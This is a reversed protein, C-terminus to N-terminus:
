SVRGYVIQDALADNGVSSDDQLLTHTSEVIPLEGPRPQQQSYDPWGSTQQQPQAPAGAGSDPWGSDPWGSAQQQPQAPAQQQPQAPNNPWTAVQVSAPQGQYGMEREYGMPKAVVGQEVLNEFEEDVSILLTHLGLGPTFLALVPTKAALQVTEVEALLNLLTTFQEYTFPGTSPTDAEEFLAQQQEKDRGTQQKRLALIMKLGTEVTCYNYKQLLKYVDEQQRQQLKSVVLQGRSQKPVLTVGEAAQQSLPNPKDIALDNKLQRSVLTLAAVEELNLDSLQTDLQDQYDIVFNALRNVREQSTEGMGPRAKINAILDDFTSFDKTKQYKANVYETKHAGVYTMIYDTVTTSVALLAVSSVITMLLAQFDFKTIRGSQVFVFMIGHRNYVTRTMDGKGWNSNSQMTGYEAYPVRTPQIVYTPQAGNVNSYKILVAVTIGADRMSDSTSSRTSSPADSYHDLDTFDASEAARLLEAVTFIDEKGEGISKIVNGKGDQLSGIMKSSQGAYMTSPDAEYFQVAKMAHRLHISFDEVGAVFTKNPQTNDKYTVDCSATLQCLRTQQSVIIRTSLMINGYSGEPFVAELEDLVICSEQQKAPSPGTYQECYALTKPDVSKQPASASVEITGIPVEATQYGKNIIIAFAVIYILIGLMLLYRLIGLKKDRVKVIKVTSYALIDDWDFPM